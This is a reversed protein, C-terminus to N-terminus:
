VALSLYRHAGLIIVPIVSNNTGTGTHGQVALCTLRRCHDALTIELNKSIFVLVRQCYWYRVQIERYYSNYDSAATHTVFIDVTVNPVPQVRVQGVGQCLM